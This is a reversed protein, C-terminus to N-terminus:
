KASRRRRLAGVGLLGLGVLALSAPEPVVVVQGLTLDIATSGGLPDIVAQLAGLKAFDVAGGGGCTVVVVGNNFGCLGFAALSIYTTEPVPHANSILQIKSWQTASTYAELDFRFGADSYIVDLAFASTAADALFMGGLGTPDIAAASNAGDWRVLGTGTTRSAVNFDLFGGGVGMSVLPSTTNTTTLLNVGLDRFGGLISTDGVSGVQSMIYSGGPTTDSLTTQATTFLDITNVLAANAATSLSMAVVAAAILTKKM